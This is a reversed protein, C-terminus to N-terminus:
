ILISVTYTTSNNCSINVSTLKERHRMENSETRAFILWFYVTPPTYNGQNRSLLYERSEQIHFDKLYINYTNNLLSVILALFLM